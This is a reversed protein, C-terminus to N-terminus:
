AKIKQVYNYSQKLFDKLIKMQSEKTEVFFDFGDAVLNLENMWRWRKVEFWIKGLKGDFKTEDIKLLYSRFALAEPNSYYLAFFYDMRNLGFGMWGGNHQGSLFRFKVKSELVTLADGMLIMLDYVPRLEQIEELRKTSRMNGLAKAYDPVKKQYSKLSESITSKVRKIVMNQKALFEIFQEIFFRSLPQIKDSRLEKELWDAVQFWRVAFDPEIELDSSIPYKSLVILKTQKDEYGKLVKRYRKLQNENIEAEVKVEIFVIYGDISVEIDPRGLDTIPQAIIQVNAVEAV